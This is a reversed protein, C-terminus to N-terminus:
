PQELQDRLAAEVADRFVEFSRAGHILEGNVFFTPTGLRPEIADVAARDRELVARHADSDLAQALAEVDIGGVEVAYSLLDARSLRSQREFVLDHFRWFAADGAQRHVELAARAALEAHRHYPMPRNRWVVAVCAGYQELVRELTPVARACYPCEFDSFVQVIM